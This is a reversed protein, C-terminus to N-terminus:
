PRHPESIGILSASSSRPTVHSDDTTEQHENMLLLFIVRLLLVRVLLLRVVFISYLSSSRSDKTLTMTITATTTTTTIKNCGHRKETWFVYFCFACVSLLFCFAFLLFCFCSVSLVFCSASLWLCFASAISLLLCSAFVAFTSRPFCFASLFAFLLFCFGALLVLSFLLLCWVHAPLVFVLLMLFFFGLVVLGGKRKEM